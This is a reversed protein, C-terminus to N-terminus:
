KEHQEQITSHSIMQWREKKWVFVRVYKLWYRDTKDKDIRTITMKGKVIAIDGHLETTVSDHQRLAYNANVVSRLWAAKDQVKGSGHSFVFDNSYLNELAKTNKSVVYDDIQQNLAVIANSDAGTQQAAIFLPFLFLVLYIFSKM